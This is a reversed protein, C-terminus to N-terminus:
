MLQCKRICVFRDLQIQQCQRQKDCDLSGQLSFSYGTKETGTQSFTVSIVEIIRHQNLHNYPYKKEKQMSSLKTEAFDTM